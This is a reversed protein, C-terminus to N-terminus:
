RRFPIRLGLKRFHPSVVRVTAVDVEEAELRALTELSARLGVWPECRAEWESDVTVYSM